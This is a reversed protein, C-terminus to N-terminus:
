EAELLERGRHWWIYAAVPASRQEGASCHLLVPKQLLDYAVLADRRAQTRKKTVIMPNTRSHAPDEWPIHAVNFRRARYFEVLNAAKLDLAEYFKLETDHMLCIISRIGELEVQEVWEFILPTAEPALNRVSGGYLRNHRLPRHACALAGPIPWVLLQSDDRNAIRRGLNRLEAALLKSRSEIEQEM